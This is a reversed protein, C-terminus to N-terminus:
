QICKTQVPQRKTLHEAKRRPSERQRGVDCSGEDTEQSSDQKSVDM